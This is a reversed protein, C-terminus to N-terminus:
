YWAVMGLGDGDARATVEMPVFPREATCLVAEGRDRQEQQQLATPLAHFKVGAVKCRVECGAAFYLDNEGLRWM